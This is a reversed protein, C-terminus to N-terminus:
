ETSGLLICRFVDVSAQLVNFAKSLFFPDIRPLLNVEMELKVRLIGWGTGDLVKPFLMHRM